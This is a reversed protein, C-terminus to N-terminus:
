YVLTWLMGWVVCAAVASMGTLVGQSILIPPGGNTSNSGSSGGSNSSSNSNSKVGAGPILVPPASPTFVAPSPICSTAAGLAGNVKADANITANGSFSCATSTRHNLEFYQSFVYSLKIAITTLDSHFNFDVTSSRASSKSPDCMAVRGYVGTVGNSSIDDCSGGVQGVLGCAIGILKGVLVMYDPTPPQFVCSLENALCGCAADDPTPPLTTSVSWAPPSTAPCGPLSAATASGKAPTNVFTVANFKAALNDFDANTTITKNDPSLAAMGFNHGKSTVPFYSFALGGSWVNTMPQSSPLTM